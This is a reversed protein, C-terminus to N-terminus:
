SLPNWKNLLQLSYKEIIVAVGEVTDALTTCKFSLSSEKLSSEAKSELVFHFYIVMRLATYPSAAKWTDLFAFSHHNFVYVDVTVPM